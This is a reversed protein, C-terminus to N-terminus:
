AAWPAGGVAGGTQKILAISSNVLNASNPFQKAAAAQFQKLAAVKNPAKASITAWLNQLGKTTATVAEKGVGPIARGVDAGSRGVRQLPDVSPRGRTGSAKAGKLVRSARPGLTSGLGKLLKSGGRVGAKAGTKALGLGARGLLGLLGTAM